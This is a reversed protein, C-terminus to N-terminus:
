DTREILADLGTALAEFPVMSSEIPQTEDTTLDMVGGNMLVTIDGNAWSVSIIESSGGGGFEQRQLAAYSEDGIAGLEIPEAGNLHQSLELARRVTQAANPDCRVALSVGFGTGDQIIASFDSSGITLFTWEAEGPLELEEFPMSLLREGCTRTQALAPTAPASVGIVLLCALAAAISRSVIGGGQHDVGGDERM